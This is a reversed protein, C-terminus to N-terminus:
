DLLRTQIKKASAYTVLLRRALAEIDAVPLEDGYMNVIMLLRRTSPSLKTRENDSTPTGIGGTNDRWVPMGAINLPGRGIAEYPEGERGIGLTVTDGDIRDADFGGISHGCAVSLLNILDIVAATRYLELGKVMRRMLAESSPRYRNPEKGCAKYAIRTAAIAPRKNVMEMAYRGHVDAALAELEAWLAEPTDPNEIEAEIQLVRLAPAKARIEDSVVLTKM